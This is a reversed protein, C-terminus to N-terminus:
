GGGEGGKDAGDRGPPDEGDDGAVDPTAERVGEDSARPHRPDPPNGEDARAGGEEDADGEGRAGEPSEPADARLLEALRGLLADDDSLLADYDDDIDADIEEMKGAFWERNAVLKAELEVAIEELRRKKKREIELLAQTRAERSAALAVRDVDVRVRRVVLYVVVTTTAILVLGLLLFGWWTM